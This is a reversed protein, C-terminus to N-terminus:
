RGCRGGQKGAPERALGRAAQRLLNVVPQAAEVRLRGAPGGPGEDEFLTPAAQDQAPELRHPRAVPIDEVDGFM